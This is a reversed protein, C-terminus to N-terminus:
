LLFCAVRCTQLAAGAVLFSAPPIWLAAGAVFNCSMKQFGRVLKPSAVSFTERCKSIPIYSVHQFTMFYRTQWAFRLKAVNLGGFNVVKSSSLMPVAM